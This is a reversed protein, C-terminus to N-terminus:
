RMVGTRGLSYRGPHPWVCVGHPGRVVPIATVHGTVSNFAYVVNDYRGSLWLVKGDASVNGMDPSGEGPVHWTAVVKRAAFSVVSVAGAGRDAVYLDRGDRSVYLGHAAAGTAIFGTIRLTRPYRRLPPM